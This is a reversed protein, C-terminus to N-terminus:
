ESGQFGVKGRLNDLPREFAVPACVVEHIKPQHMLMAVTLHVDDTRRKPTRRNRSGHVPHSTRVTSRPPPSLAIM